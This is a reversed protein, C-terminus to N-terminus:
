AHANRAFSSAAEKDDTRVSQRAAVLDGAQLAARLTSLGNRLENDPLRTVLRGLRDLLDQRISTADRDIPQYARRAPWASVLNIIWKALPVASVPFSPTNDERAEGTSDLVLRLLTRLQAALVAIEAAIESNDLQGLYPGEMQGIYCVPSSLEVAAQSATEIGIPDLHAESVLEQVIEAAPLIRTVHDVGTGAYLAMAGLEGTTTRLPSDTSFLEIPRGDDEAIIVGDSPGAPKRLGRTVDSVLVRVPAGQPWNIHFKETLVTDRGSAAVLRQKHADHAFSEKAALFATGLVIGDAGLAMATLLDGGTGLGGAALVPVKVADVVAPLLERLRMTGRVHGGAERGQAIVIDAGAHQVAVAENVSGVQYVVLIGAERLRRVLSIDLDWFLAVIPVRLRIIAAVQQDLLGPPTAAPIINVGFQEIGASRLALVEREILAPSERVMGLFGFGGARSVAAVLEARAPGGMGALVIPFRCGLLAPVRSPYAM